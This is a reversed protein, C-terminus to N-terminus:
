IFHRKNTGLIETPQLEFSPSFYALREHVHTTSVDSHALGEPADVVGAVVSLLYLNLIASNL